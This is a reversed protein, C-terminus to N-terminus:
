LMSRQLTATYVIRRWRWDERIAAKRRASVLGINQQGLDAEVAPFWIPSPSGLPRKWDPPLGRIVAAAARHHDEQPSSRATHGSLRLRRDTVSPFSSPM